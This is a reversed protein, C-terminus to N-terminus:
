NFIQPCKSWDQKDKADWYNGKYIYMMENTAPDKEQKFWAPEWPETRTKRRERQAQELRQFTHKSIARQNKIPRGFVLQTDSSVQKETNAEDWKTEEM